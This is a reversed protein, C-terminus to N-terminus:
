GRLKQYLAEAMEDPEGELIEGVPRPAPPFTKLVKAKAAGAGVKGADLGDVDSAAKVTAKFKKAKMKGKLSSIRPENIGKIVSILAPTPSELRDYGEEMMRQVVMNGEGIEEIKQVFTIYPIQLMQALAPGVYATNGDVSEGGCIVLDVNELSAITRSLAYATAQCDSGAFADDTLMIGDDAGLAIAYKITEEAQKPGMTIVTVKGGHAEKLRIGEEVAYDDLSNITTPMGDRKLRHTESDFRIDTTDLIQKVCVVIHM